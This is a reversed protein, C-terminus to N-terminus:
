TYALTCTVRTAIEDQNDRLNDRDAARDVADAASPQVRERSRPLYRNKQSRSKRPVAQITSRQAAPDADVESSVQCQSGVPISGGTHEARPDTHVPEKFRQGALSCAQFAFRALPM